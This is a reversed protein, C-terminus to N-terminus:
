YTYGLSVGYTRPTAYRAGDLSFALQSEYVKYVRDTLNRGFVGVKLNRNLTLTASADVTVYPDQSLSNDFVFYVRSSYYPSVAIELQREGGLDTHYSLTASATFTPARVMKKGSADVPVAVFIPSGAVTTWGPANKFDIYRAHTYAAAARVDFNESVRWSADAEAGYIRAKPVNVLQNQIANGVQLTANAQTDKYDYYFAAANYSFRPAASKVGVEFANVKEPDVQPGTPSTVDFVGSKFGRSYTAYVNTQPALAYRVGVRPTWEDDTAEQFRTFPSPRAVGFASM